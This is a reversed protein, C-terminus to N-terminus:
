DRPNSLIFTPAHVLYQRQIMSLNQWNFTSAEGDGDADDAATTPDGEGDDGEVMGFEDENVDNDDNEDVADKGDNNDEDDSMTSAASMCCPLSTGFSTIIYPNIFSILAFSQM